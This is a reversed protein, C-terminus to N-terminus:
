PDGGEDKEETLEELEILLDELVVLEEQYRRRDREEMYAVLEALDKHKRGEAERFVRAWHDEIDWIRIRTQRIAERLKHERLDEELREVRESTAYYTAWSKLTVGTGSIAAVLAAVALIRKRM